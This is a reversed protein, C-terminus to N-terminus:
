LFYQLDRQEENAARRACEVARRIFPAAPGHALACGQCGGQPPSRFFRDRDPQCTWHDSARLARRICRRSHPEGRLIFLVDGPAFEIEQDPAVSTDVKLCDTKEVPAAGGRELRAM